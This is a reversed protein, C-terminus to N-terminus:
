KKPSPAHQSTDERMRRIVIAALATRYAACAPVLAARREADLLKATALTSLLASAAGAALPLRLGRPTGERALHTGKLLAAGAIVPLGVSWSLRDSDRRSFGRVRAAAVTAGSRSVGPVLALSQALGLVLGDRLSASRAPHAGTDQPQRADADHPRHTNTDHPQYADTDHPQHAPTAFLAAGRARTPRAKRAYMESAGTAASGVLLGVAITAPTGLWREIRGGLAYGMLAPPTLAAALFGLGVGGRPRSPSGQAAAAAGEGGSRCSGSGEPPRMLLAAATGAHLAVEFAKRLEPDLEDYPWRALWPVLTTHASSSIPLLETPGHLLGLALAHRLPLSRSGKDTM